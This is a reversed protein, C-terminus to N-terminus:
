EKEGEAPQSPLSRYDKMWEIAQEVAERNKGGVWEINAVWKIIPISEDFLKKIQEERTM